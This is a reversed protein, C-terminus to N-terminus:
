NVIQNINTKESKKMIKEIIVWLISFPLIVFSHINMRSLIEYKVFYANIWSYVKVYHCSFHPAATNRSEEYKKFPKGGGPLIKLLALSNSIKADRQYISDPAPGTFGKLSQFIRELNIAKVRKSARRGMPTAAM